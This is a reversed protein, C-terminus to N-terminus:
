RILAGVGPFIVMIAVSTFVWLMPSTLGNQVAAFVWGIILFILAIINITIM